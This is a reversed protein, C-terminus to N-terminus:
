DDDRIDVRCQAYGGEHALNMLGAVQEQTYLHTVPEPHIVHIADGPKLDEPKISKYEQDKIVTM